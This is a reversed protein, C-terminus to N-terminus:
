GDLPSQVALSRFKLQATFANPTPHPQEHHRHSFYFIAIQQSQRRKEQLQRRPMRRSDPICFNPGIHFLNVFFFHESVQFAEQLRFADLHLLAGVSL